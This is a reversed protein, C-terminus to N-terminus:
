YLIYALYHFCYFGFCRLSAFLCPSLYTVTRVLNHSTVFTSCVGPWAPVDGVWDGRLSVCPPGAANAGLGRTSSWELDTESNTESDCWFKVLDLMELELLTNTSLRYNGLIIRLSRGSQIVIYWFCGSGTLFEFCTFTWFLAVRSIVQGFHKSSLVVKALICGASDSFKCMFSAVSVAPVFRIAFSLISVTIVGLVALSSAFFYQFDSFIVPAQGRSDQKTWHLLQPLQFKNIYREQVIKYM